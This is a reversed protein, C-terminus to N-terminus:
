RSRGNIQAAHNQHVTYTRAMGYTGSSVWDVQTDHLIRMEFNFYYKYGVDPHTCGM